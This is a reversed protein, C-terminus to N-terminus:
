KRRLYRKAFQIDCNIREKLDQINEFKIEDRIRKIIEIKLYKDYLYLDKDILHVEVTKEKKSFTPCIGINIVAKLKKSQPFSIKGNKLEPISNWIEAWGCYVGDKPLLKDKEPKLNATNVGLINGGIKSGKVVKEIIILPHGLYKLADDVKGDCLLARIKTSSIIESNKVVPKVVCVKFNYIKGLEQLTNVDGSKKYGFLFDKGIVIEKTNIKCLIKKVFDLPTMKLLNPKSPLAFVNDINMLSLLYIKELLTTILLPSSKNIIKQPHSLFTIVAAKNKNKRSLVEKIIKQHGLHVGDFVGITVVTPPYPEDKIKQTFYM